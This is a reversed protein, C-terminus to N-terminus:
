ANWDTGNFRVTWPVFFGVYGDDESWDDYPPEGPPDSDINLETLGVTGHEALTIATLTQATDDWRFANGPAADMSALETDASAVMSIGGPYNANSVIHIEIQDNNAEPFHYETIINPSEPDGGTADTGQYRVIYTRNPASGTVGYYMLQLSNDGASVMIKPLEPLDVALNDYEDSGEGFTIYNNTGLYLVPANGFDQIVATDPNLTSNFSWPVQGGNITVLHQQIKSAYYTDGNWTVTISAEGASLDGPAKAVLYCIQRFGTADQCIFRRTGTQKVIFGPVNGGDKYFDVRIDYDSDDGFFKKNIAKGVTNVKLNTNFQTSINIHL